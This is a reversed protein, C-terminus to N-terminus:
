RLSSRVSAMAVSPRSRSFRSASSASSRPPDGQASLGDPSQYLTTWQPFRRGLLDTLGATQKLQRPRLYSEIQTLDAGGPRVPRTVLSAGFRRLPRPLRDVARRFVPHQQRLRQWKWIPGGFEDPTVNQPPVPPLPGARSLGLWDFVRDMTQLPSETLEEYTLLLIADRDFFRYYEELQAAYNGIEIYQIDDKIAREIPRYEGFYRVNHWYHSLTREIPDRMLYILRADPNFRHIREAVGRALPLCAYFVSAEGAFPAAEAADFLSLYRRESKWYERRWMLPFIRKLDDPEVFYCPEKPESMFISPHADLLRWLYSTGSKMSGIVFLNPKGV